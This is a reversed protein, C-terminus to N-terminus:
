VKNKLKTRTEKHLREEEEIIKLIRYYFLSHFKKMTESDMELQEFCEYDNLGVKSRLAREQYYGKLADTAFRESYTKLYSIYIVGKEKKVMGDMGDWVRTRLKVETFQNCTRTVFSHFPIYLKDILYMLLTEDKQRNEILYKLRDYIDTLIMDLMQEYYFAPIVVNEDSCSKLHVIDCLDKNEAMLSDQRQDDIMLRFFTYNEITAAHGRMKLDAEHGDNKANVNEDTVKMGANSVKNGREKAYEMELVVGVEFGDKNPNEKDMKKLMRLSDMDLIHSYKEDDRYGSLDFFDQNFKPFNGYDEIEFNTRVAYNGFLLSTPATYIFYHQLYAKICQIVNIKKLGDYYYLGYKEADYDFAYNSFNYKYIKRMLALNALNKKSFEEQFYARELRDCFNRISALTYLRHNKFCARYFDQVELWKVHPFQKQAKALGKFAEERFIQEQTMGLSTLTTTKKSRQKGVFFLAGPYEKLFQKNKEEHQRLISVGIDKRWGNFIMYAVIIWIPLPVTTLMVSLDLLLKIVQTYISLFDFSIAFYLYFAIFEIVITAIRFNWSWIIAFWILYTEKFFFWFDKIANKIPCWITDEFKLYRRLAKSPLRVEGEKHEVPKVYKSKISSIFCFMPMMFITLFQSIDSLLLLADMCYWTFNQKDFLLDFFDELKVLFEEFGVVWEATMEAPIETVTPTIVHIEFLETFYYAVSLLFDWISQIFRLASSSFKFVSALMSVVILLIAIRHYIATKKDIKGVKCKTM